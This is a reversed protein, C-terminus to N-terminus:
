RSDITASNHLDRLFRRAVMSLQEGYLRNEVDEKSAQQVGSARRACLAVLHLGAKTRVPGGIEGVKLTDVVSKFDPSLDSLETDGLDGAVVGDIKRAQEDLTACTTFQAKLADLKALVGPLDGQGDGNSDFFSRVYVQYIM